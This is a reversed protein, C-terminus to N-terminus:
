PACLCIGRRYASLQRELHEKEQAVERAANTEMRRLNGAVERERKKLWLLLLPSSKELLHRGVYKELDDFPLWKGQQAVFIQYYRNNEFVLEEQTVCFGSNALYERLRYTNKLPCFVFRGISQAIDRDRKLMQIITVSGLGCIVATDIPEGALPQLGDGQRLTLGELGLKEKLTKAKRISEPSIDTACVTHARGSQLLYAALKGHDCGIDAVVRGQAYKAVAQLRDSIQM